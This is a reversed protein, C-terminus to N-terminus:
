LIYKLLRRPCRSREFVLNVKFINYVSCKLRHKVSKVIFKKGSKLSPVFAFIPFAVTIKNFFQIRMLLYGYSIRSSRGYIDNLKYQRDKFNNRKIFVGNKIAPSPKKQKSSVKISNVGSCRKTCFKLIKIYLEIVQRIIYYHLLIEKQVVYIRFYNM